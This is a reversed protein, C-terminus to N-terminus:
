RGFVLFLLFLSGFCPPRPATEQKKTKMHDLVLIFSHGELSEEMKEGCIFWTLKFSERLGFLANDM